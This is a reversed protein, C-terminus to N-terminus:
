SDGWDIVDSLAVMVAEAIRDEVTERAPADEHKYARAYGYRV